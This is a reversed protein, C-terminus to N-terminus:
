SLGYTAKFYDYNQTLETGNLVKNYIMVFGLKGDYADADLANTVDGIHITDLAGSPVNSSQTGTGKSVNNVFTEMGYPSSWDMTGAIIYWTATSFSEAAWSNVANTASDWTQIAFRNQSSNTQAKIRSTGAVVSGGDTTGLIGQFNAWTDVNVAAMWTHSGNTTQAATSNTVKFQYTEDFDFYSPSAATYSPSSTATADYGNGSLDTWTTGSGPYSSADNADFYAVLGDTVYSAAEEPSKYFGFPIFM